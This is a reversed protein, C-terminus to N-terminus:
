YGAMCRWYAASWADRGGLAWDARQRCFLKETDTATRGNPEPRQMRTYGKAELMTKCDAYANGASIGGILGGLLASEATRNLCHWTEGEPTRFTAAGDPGTGTFPGPGAYVACGTLLGAALCFSAFWRM